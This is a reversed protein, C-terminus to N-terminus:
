DSTNDRIEELLKIVGDYPDDDATDNDILEIIQQQNNKIDTLDQDIESYKLGPTDTIVRELSDQLVTVNNTIERQISDQLVTVDNTIERQTSDQLVKLNGDEDTLDSGGSFFDIIYERYNKAM